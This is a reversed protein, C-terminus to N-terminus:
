QRTQAQLSQFIKERAEAPYDRAGGLHGALATVHAAEELSLVLRIARASNAAWILARGDSLLLAPTDPHNELADAIAVPDPASVPIQQARTYSFMQFYRVPLARASLGWAALRPARLLIAAGASDRSNLVAALLAAETARSSVGDPAAGPETLSEEAPKDETHPSIVGLLFHNEWREALLVTSSHSLAQGLRLIRAGDALTKSLRGSPGEINYAESKTM